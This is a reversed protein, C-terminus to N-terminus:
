ASRSIAPTRATGFWHNLAHTLHHHTQPTTWAIYGDPRILTADPTPHQ